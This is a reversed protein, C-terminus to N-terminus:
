WIYLIFGTIGTLGESVRLEWHTNSFVPYKHGFYDPDVLYITGFGEDIVSNAERVASNVIPISNGMTIYMDKNEFETQGNVIDTQPQPQINTYVISATIAIACATLIIIM